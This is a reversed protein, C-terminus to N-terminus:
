VRTVPIQHFHLQDGLIPRDEPIYADVDDMFKGVIQALSVAILADHRTDFHETVRSGGPLIFVVSPM